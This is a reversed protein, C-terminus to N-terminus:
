ADAARYLKGCLSDDCCETRHSELEGTVLLGDLATILPFYDADDTQIKAALQDFKLLEIWKGRTTARRAASGDLAFALANPQGTRVESFVRESM